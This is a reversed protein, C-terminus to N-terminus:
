REEWLEAFIYAVELLSNTELRKSLLLVLQSDRKWSCTWLPIHALTAANKLFPVSDELPYVKVLRPWSLPQAPSWFWGSIYVGTSEGSWTSYAELELDCHKVIVSFTENWYQALNVINLTSLLENFFALYPGMQSTKPFGSAPPWVTNSFVLNGLLNGSLDTKLLCFSCTSFALNSFNLHFRKQHNEFM